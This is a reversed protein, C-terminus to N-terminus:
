CPLAKHCIQNPHGCRDHLEESIQHPQLSDSADETKGLFIFRTFPHLFNILAWISLEKLNLKNHLQEALCKHLKALQWYCRGISTEQNWPSKIESSNNDRIIFDLKTSPDQAETVLPSSNQREELM